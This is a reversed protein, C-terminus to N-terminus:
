IDKGDNMLVTIETKEHGQICWFKWCTGGGLVADDELLADCVAKSINDWDPKQQCMQGCMKLKKKHSWSEPMPIWAIIAIAYPSAPMPGAAARIRDCYERYRVVAPRKMWRDRQTMRPKGMPPGLVTFAYAKPKDVIADTEPEKKVINESFGENQTSQQQKKVNVVGLLSGMRQHDALQEKTWSPM